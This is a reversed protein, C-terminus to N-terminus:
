LSVGRKTLIDIGQHEQSVWVIEDLEKKSLMERIIDREIRLREDIVQRNLHITDYAGSNDTKCILSVYLGLQWTLDVFTLVETILTSWVFHTNSFSKEPFIIFLNETAKEISKFELNDKEM